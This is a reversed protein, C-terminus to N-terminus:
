LVSNRTLAYITDNEGGNVGLNVIEGIEGCLM